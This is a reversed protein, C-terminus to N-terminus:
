ICVDAINQPGLYNTIIDKPLFHDACVFKVLTECCNANSIAEKWESYLAKPPAFCSIKQKRKTSECEKVSCKKVKM